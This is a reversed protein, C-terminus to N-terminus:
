KGAKISSDGYDMAALVFTKGSTRRKPFSHHNEPPGCHCLKNRWGLRRHCGYVKNSAYPIQTDISSAEHLAGLTDRNLPFRAPLCEDISSLTILMLWKEYSGKGTELSTLHTANTRHLRLPKSESATCKDTRFRTHKTVCVQQVPSTHPQTARLKPRNLLLVQITLVRSPFCCLYESDSTSV